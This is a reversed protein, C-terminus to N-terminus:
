FFLFVEFLLPFPRIFVGVSPVKVSPTFSFDRDLFSFSSFFIVVIPLSNAYSFFSDSFPPTSTLFFLSRLLLSRSRELFRFGARLEPVSFFVFSLPPAFFSVHKLPFLRPQFISCSIPFSLLFFVSCSAVYPLRRALFPNTFPPGFGGGVVLPSGFILTVGEVRFLMSSSPPTRWRHFM